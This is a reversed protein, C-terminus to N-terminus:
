VSALNDFIERSINLSILFSVTSIIGFKSSVLGSGVTKGDLNPNSTGPYNVSMTAWNFDPVVKTNVADLYREAPLENLRDDTWNQMMATFNAMNQLTVIKAGQQAPLSQPTYKNSVIPM